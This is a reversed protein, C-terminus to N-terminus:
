FDKKAKPKCHHYYQFTAQFSLNSSYYLIMFLGLPLLSVATYIQAETQLKVYSATCQIKFFHPTSSKAIVEDATLRNQFNKLQQFCCRIMQMIFITNKGGRATSGHVFTEVARGSRSSLATLMM